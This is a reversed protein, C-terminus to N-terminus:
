QSSIVRVYFTGSAPDEGNLSSCARVKVENTASVFCTYAAQLVGGDWSVQVPSGVHCADGTRAGTVTIASSELCGAATLTSGFNITASGGLSRTIRSANIKTDTPFLSRPGILIGTITHALRASLNLDLQQIAFATGAFAVVAFLAIKKIM